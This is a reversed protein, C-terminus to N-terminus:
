LKLLLKELSIGLNEGGMRSEHYIAVLKSYFEELEEKKWNKLDAKSKRYPYDKIELSEATAGKSIALLDRVKSVIKFILEEPEIGSIILKQYEIWIIKVEKRGIADQLPFHNYTFFKTGKKEPLSQNQNEFVGQYQKFLSDM